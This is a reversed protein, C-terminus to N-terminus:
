KSGWAGVGIDAVLPAKLEIEFEDMMDPWEMIRQIEKAATDAYKDDVDVLVADHVTGVISLNLEKSLEKDIQVCALMMIDSGTSQVPTNIARRIAKSRMYRDQNYIDPLARFRGFKNHVGGYAECMYEMEKHWNLLRDYKRFFAARFEEAQSQTMVIGYSDFAYDVFGGAWMGYLFGFNVAKANTRDEKTFKKRGSLEALIQATASHIDGGSQYVELMTSDNAYDAAIRLELQSYDAEIFTRGPPATYLTRLDKNRPVQQLNPNSCSTRGTRVNTIGFSPHIRGDFSAFDGWQNLFKTNAGYYFKYDLLQKPLNYGKAALRKLSDAGSSPKGTKPSLKQQPLGEINFLVDSVQIPSNWNINHQAQLVRLKKKEEQAYKEKVIELQDQDIWVGKQEARRFMLYAPRLIKHYHRWQMPGLNEHFFEFLMWTYKVDKKLYPIVTAADSSTKNKKSIDWDPIGLYRAAMDKLGHGAALDYATGMLMVDFHIPLRLYGNHELFLTDFKGNQFVMKLKQAAIWDLRATLKFRDTPSSMDYTAVKLPKGIDEALGIGVFTIEDKFRSLGTTEIDITAYKYRAM